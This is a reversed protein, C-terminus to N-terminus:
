LILGFDDPFKEIRSYPKSDQFVFQTHSDPLSEFAAKPESVFFRSIIRSNDM